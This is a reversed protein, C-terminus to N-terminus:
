TQDEKREIDRADVGEDGEPHQRQGNDEVREEMRGQTALGVIVLRAHDTDIWAADPCIIGTGV